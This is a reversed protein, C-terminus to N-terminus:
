SQKPIHQKIFELILEEIKFDKAEAILLRLRPCVMFKSTEKRTLPGPTKTQKLKYAWTGSAPDL